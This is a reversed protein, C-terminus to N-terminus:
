LGLSTACGHATWVEPDHSDAHSWFWGPLYHEDVNETFKQRRRAALLVLDMHIRLSVARGVNRWEIPVNEVPTSLLVVEDVRLGYATANLAVLGGYSHAFVTRLRGRAVDAGWLAFREAALERHKTKYAGSWSFAAGDAYLDQRV